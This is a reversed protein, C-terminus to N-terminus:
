KIAYRAINRIQKGTSYLAKSSYIFERRNWEIATKLNIFGSSCFM